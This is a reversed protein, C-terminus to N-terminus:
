GLDLFDCLDQAISKLIIGHLKIESQLRLEIVM